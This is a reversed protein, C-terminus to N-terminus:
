RFERRQTTATTATMWYDTPFHNRGRKAFAIFNIPENVVFAKVIHAVCDVALLPDFAPEPDPFNLQNGGHIRRPDIQALSPVLPM